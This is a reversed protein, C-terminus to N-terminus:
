RADSDVSYRKARLCPKRGFLDVAVRVWTVRLVVTWRAVPGLWTQLQSM